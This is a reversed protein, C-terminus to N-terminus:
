QKIQLPQIIVREEGNGDATATLRIAKIPMEPRLTICGATLPGVEVFAKGDYSVEVRSGWVIKRPLHLYGTQLFIERCSLPEEFTFLFWDGTRHSRTTWAAGKYSELRSFPVKESQTMSSEFRVAPQITKYYSAHATLPSRATLLRSRFRYLEPQSTRIPGKYPIEETSPEKTYYLTSGDDTSASLLGERYSVRPPFLRFRLDMATMRAYHEEILVKKFHEWDKQDYHWALEALAVTRPYLMFDLYDPEEPNHGIYAESFFTCEFGVVHRIEEPTFGQKQLDFEYVKRADFIAAWTHGEEHQSQRMDFYFFQGPMVVTPYGETASKRCARISEWGQVLTSKKLSGGNIAENWVVPTKGNSELITILRSMFYQQLEEPEKMGRRQMLERCRPCRKWQSMDVEDGGIHIYPSPFLECVERLIDNLLQFNEERAACWVNRLDYGASQELYPTYDCLIEPHLRAVTRSHGPLDIEPIIEIGRVAAYRIIERMEEQTFFGGYREDWRGYVSKVPSDGGRFGGELALEPHSRIELRWGEDDTLHFHMTNLKHYAARDIYRMVRERDMWTRAVDLHFARYRFRPADEVRCCPITCAYPKIGGYLESPMLQLLSQVGYFLGNYDGGTITVRDPDVQLHYGESPLAPDIDLLIAPLFPLTVGLRLNLHDSLYEAIPGSEEALPVITCTPDVWFEGQGAEFHRPTPLITPMAAASLTTALTLILLTLTRKM